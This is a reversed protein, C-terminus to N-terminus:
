ALNRATEVDFATVGTVNATAVNTSTGLNGSPTPPAVSAAAFCKEVHTAKKMCHGFVAAQVALRAATGKWCEEIGARINQKAPNITSAETPFMWEWIRAKGVTLGDVEVWAFGNNRVDEWSLREKWVFFDPSALEGSFRGTGNLREALDFYGDGTLPYAALAPIGTIYAKLTTLQPGTLAM